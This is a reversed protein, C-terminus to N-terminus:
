SHRRASARGSPGLRGSNALRPNLHRLFRQYKTETQPFFRVGARRLIELLKPRDREPEATELEVEFDRAGDPYRSADVELLLGGQLRYTKRRNMMRGVHVLRFPGGHEAALAQLGAHGAGWLSDGDPPFVGGKKKWPAEVEVSKALGGLLSGARKVTLLVRGKEARIRIVGEKGPITGDESQYYHNIQEWEEAPPGLFSCLRRYAREGAIRYKLETEERDAM